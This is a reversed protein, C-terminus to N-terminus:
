GLLQLVVLAGVAPLERDDANRQSKFARMGDHM